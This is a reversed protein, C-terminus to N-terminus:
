ALAGGNMMPPITEQQDVIVGNQEEFKSINDALARLLRKANQPTMIIRSCVNSKPLGPMISAFDIIFEAPSHTIVALNSYTGQAVEDSINIKLDTKNEQAM